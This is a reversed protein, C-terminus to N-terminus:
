FSPIELFSIIYISKRCQSYIFENAYVRDPRDPGPGPRAPGVKQPGRASRTSFPGFDDGSLLLTEM